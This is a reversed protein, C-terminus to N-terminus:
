ILRGVHSNSQAVTYKFGIVPLGGVDGVAAKINTNFLNTHKHSEVHWSQHVYFPRNTNTISLVTKSTKIM